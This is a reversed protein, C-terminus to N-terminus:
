ANVKEANLCAEVYASRLSEPADLALHDFVSQASCMAWGLCSPEWCACPMAFLTRSGTELIGLDAYDASLGSREAYQRIFDERTM